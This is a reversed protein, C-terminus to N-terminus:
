AVAETLVELAAADSNKRSERGTARLIMNRIHSRMKTPDVARHNADHSSKQYTTM